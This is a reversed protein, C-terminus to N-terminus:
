NMDTHHQLVQVPQQAQVPANQHYNARVSSLFQLAVKWSAQVIDEERVERDAM